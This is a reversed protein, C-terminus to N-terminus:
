EGIELYKKTNELGPHFGIVPLGNNDVIIEGDSKLISYNSYEHPVPGHILGEWMMKLVTKMTGTKPFEFKMFERSRFDNLNFEGPPLSDKVFEWYDDFLIVDMENEEVHQHFSNLTVGPSFRKDDFDFLDTGRLTNSTVYSRMGEARFIEEYLFTESKFDMKTNLVKKILTDGLREKYIEKMGIFQNRSLHFSQIFVGFVGIRALEAALLEAENEPLWEPVLPNIGVIVTHGKAVATEIFKLRSPITPASPEIAYRKRDDWFAISVYFVSKSVIELAEMAGPGTKTQFFIPIEFETLMDLVAPTIDRNSVAFPDVRNSVIVPHKRDLHWSVLDGPKHKTLQNRITVLSAKRQETNSNAFCYPCGHSCRNMMLDLKGPYFLMGERYYSFM